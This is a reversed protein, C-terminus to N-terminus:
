SQGVQPELPPWMKDALNPHTKELVAAVWGDKIIGKSKLAKNLSEAVAKKLIVVM